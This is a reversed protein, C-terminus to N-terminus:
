PHMWVLHVQAMYRTIQRGKVCGRKDDEMIQKCTVTSYSAPAVLKPGLNPFGLGVSRGGVKNQFNKPM